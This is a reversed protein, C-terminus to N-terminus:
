SGRKGPRIPGGASLTDIITCCDSHFGRLEAAASIVRFLGCERFRKLVTHVMTSCTQRGGPRSVPHPASAHGSATPTLTVRLETLRGSALMNTDINLNGGIAQAAARSILCPADKDVISISLLGLVGGWSFPLTLAQMSFTRRGPGFRFPESEAVWQVPLGLREAKEVADDAWPMGACTNACATDPLAICSLRQASEAAM